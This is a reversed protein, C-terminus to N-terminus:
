APPTVKKPRGRSKGTKPNVAKKKVEAPAPFATTLEQLTISPKLTQEVKKVETELIQSKEIAIDLKAEAKESAPPFEAHDTYGLAEETPIRALEPYDLVDSLNPNESYLIAEEASSYIGKEYDSEQLDSQLGYLNLGRLVYREFAAGREADLPAYDAVPNIQQLDKLFFSNKGTAELERITAALGQGTAEARRQIERIYIDAYFFSNANITYGAYDEAEEKLFGEFDDRETNKIHHLTWLVSLTDVKNFGYAFLTTKADEYGYRLFCWFITQYKILLARYIDPRSHLLEEKAQNLFGIM